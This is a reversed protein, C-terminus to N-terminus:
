SFMFPRVLSTDSGDHWSDQVAFRIMTLLEVDFKHEEAEESLTRSIYSYSCHQGHSVRSSWRGQGTGTMSRTAANMGKMTSAVLTAAYGLAIELEGMERRM